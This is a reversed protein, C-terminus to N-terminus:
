SLSGTKNSSPRRSHNFRSGCSVRTRLSRMNCTKTADPWTSAGLGYVPSFGYTRWVGTGMVPFGILSSTISCRPESHRVWRAACNEVKVGARQDFPISAFSQSGVIGAPIGLAYAVGMGGGGIRRLVRYRNQPLTNPILM